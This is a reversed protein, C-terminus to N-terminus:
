VEPVDQFKLAPREGHEEVCKRFVGFVTKPPMASAGEAGIKVPLEGHPETM